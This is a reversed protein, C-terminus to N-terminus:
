PHSRYVIECGGADIVDHDKLLAKDPFPAGNLLTGNTSELDHVVHGGLSEGDASTDAAGVAGAAPEFAVHRRSARAASIPVDCDQSRGLVLADRAGLDLLYTRDRDKIILKALPSEPQGCPPM